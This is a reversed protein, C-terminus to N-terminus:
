TSFTSSFTPNTHCRRTGGARAYRFPPPAGDHRQKGASAGLWALAFHFPRSTRFSRHAFYRHYGATIGFLRVWFTVLLAVLAPVSVGTLITGLALIHMGVFAYSRMFDIRDAPTLSDPDVHQRAATEIM